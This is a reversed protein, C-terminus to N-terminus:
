VLKMLNRTLLKHSENALGKPLANSFLLIGLETEIRIPFVREIRLPEHPIKQGNGIIESSGTVSRTALTLQHAM